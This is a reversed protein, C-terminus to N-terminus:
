RTPGDAGVRRRAQAAVGDQLAWRMLPVAARLVARVSGLELRNPAPLAYLRRAREPILSCAAQVMLAAPLEHLRGSPTRPGDSGMSRLLQLITQAREGGQLEPEYACLTAILGAWDRPVDVAGLALPVRAMEAVYADREAAALPRVLWDFAAAFCYIEAAHVFTLLHPDNAAYPRGDPAIGHVHAHIARVRDVARQAAQAPGYTTTAIFLATRHLRGRLDARFDSWDWVAALALPHLAQLLLAAVGGTMMAVIDAHVSWSVSQPGFWGPDGPPQTFDLAARSDGALSRVQGALAQRLPLALADLLRLPREKRM